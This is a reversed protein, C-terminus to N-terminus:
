ELTEYKLEMMDDKNLWIDQIGTVASEGNVYIAWFYQEDAMLGNIGEIFVGFDYEKFSVEAQSQLLEWAKQDDSSAVITILQVSEESPAVLNEIAAPELINPSNHTNFLYFLLAIIPLVLILLLLRLNKKM